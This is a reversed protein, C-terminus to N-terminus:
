RFLVVAKGLTFDGSTVIPKVKRWIEEVEDDCFQAGLYNFSVKM